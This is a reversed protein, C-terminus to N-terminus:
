RDRSNESGYERGGIAVRHRVKVGFASVVILSVPSDEVDYYVRLDGIRLEWPAIFGPRGPKM